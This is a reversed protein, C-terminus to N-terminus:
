LTIRTGAVRRRLTEQDRNHLQNGGNSHDDNSMGAKEPFFWNLLFIEYAILYNIRVLGLNKPTYM